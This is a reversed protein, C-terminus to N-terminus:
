QHYYEKYTIYGPIMIHFVYCDNYEQYNFATKGGTTEIEFGDPLNASLDFAYHGGAFIQAEYSTIIYGNQWSQIKARNPLTDNNHVMVFFHNRPMKQIPGCATLLLALLLRKM